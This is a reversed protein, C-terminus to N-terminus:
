APPPTSFVPDSLYVDVARRIHESTPAWPKLDDLRELQDEALTVHIGIPTGYDRAWRYHKRQGQAALDLTTPGGSTPPPGTQEPAPNPVPM